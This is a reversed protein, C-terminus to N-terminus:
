KMITNRHCLYHFGFLLIIILMYLSKLILLTYYVQKIIRSNPSIFSLRNENQGTTSNWSSYITYYASRPFRSGTMNNLFEGTQNLVQADLQNLIPNQTSVFNYYVESDVYNAIVFTSYSPNWNSSTSSNLIKCSKPYLINAINGNADYIIDNNSLLQNGSADFAFRYLPRLAREDQEKNYKEIKLLQVDNIVNVIMDTSPYWDRSDDLLMRVTDMVELPTM